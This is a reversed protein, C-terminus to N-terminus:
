RKVFFISSNEPFLSSLFFVPTLCFFLLPHLLSFDFSLGPIGSLSSVDSMGQRGEPGATTAKAEAEGGREEGGWSLGPIDSTEGRDPIEPSDNSEM